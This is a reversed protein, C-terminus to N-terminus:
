IKINPDRVTVIGQSTHKLAEEHSLIAERKTVPIDIEIHTVIVDEKESTNNTQNDNSNEALIDQPNEQEHPIKEGESNLLSVLLPNENKHPTAQQHEEPSKTESEISQPSRPLKESEVSEGNSGEFESSPSAPNDNECTNFNARPSPSTTMFNPRSPQLQPPRVMNGAAGTCNTSTASPKRIPSVHNRCDNQSTQPTHPMANRNIPRFERPSYPRRRFLSSGNVLHPPRSPNYFQSMTRTRPFPFDSLSPRSRYTNYYERELLYESSDYRYDYDQWPVHSGQCSFTDFELNYVGDVGKLTM